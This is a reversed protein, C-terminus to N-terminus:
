AHEKILTKALQRAGQQDDVAGELQADYIGDLIRQFHPGPRAGLEILAQGTVLPDPSLGIGDKALLGIVSRPSAWGAPMIAECLLLAGDAHPDSALRKREPTKMMAWERIYLGSIHLVGLFRESEVNSLNLNKRWEIARAGSKTLIADGYRDHAWAALALPADSIHEPLKTLTFLDPNILNGGFIVRDLGLSQVLQAARPRSPHIMMARIEDGIREVSVGSLDSAHATIAQATAPEIVFGFRAAFRIARLARLHDELLRMSPEGVCRIIKRNLDDRGGVHDIIQHGDPATPDLFMANITFDRREADREATSFEVSDPRRNDSYPGDTRFTAVETSPGFDRVLMVGFAAGVSATYRFLGAIQEPTANTAIDYDKPEIELIEDRVCGGALYATFGGKRLTQIIKIAAQRAPLIERDRQM